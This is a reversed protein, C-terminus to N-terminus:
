TMFNSKFHTFSLCLKLHYMINTCIKSFFTLVITLRVISIVHRIISIITTMKTSVLVNYALDAIYKTMSSVFASIHKIMCKNWLLSSTILSSEPRYTTVKKISIISSTTASAIISSKRFTAVKLAINSILWWQSKLWRHCWAKYIRLTTSIEVISICM